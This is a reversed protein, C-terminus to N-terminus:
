SLSPRGVLLKVILVSPSATRDIGENTRHSSPNSVKWYWRGFVKAQIQSYWECQYTAKYFFSLHAEPSPGNRKPVFHKVGRQSGALERDILVVTPKFGQYGRLSTSLKVVDPPIDWVTVQVKEQQHRWRLGSERCFRLPTRGEASATLTKVTPVKNLQWSRPGALSSPDSFGKTGKLGM